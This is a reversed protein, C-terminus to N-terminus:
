CDSRTVRWEATLDQNSQFNVTFGTVAKNTIWPTEDNAPRSPLELDVHYDADSMPVDFVVDVMAETDLTATGRLKPVDLVANANAAVISGVLTARATVTVTEQLNLGATVCNRLLFSQDGSLNAQGGLICNDFTAVGDGDLDVAIPTGLATAAAIEGCDTFIYGVAGGAPQANGTDYRLSIAGIGQVGQALFLGVEELLLLGLNSSESWYGGFVRIINAATAWLNRNGGASNAQLNCDLLTIGQNGVNSAAGGVVRVAAKNTHANTIDFGQILISRPITGNQESIILTHDNGVADPTAELASRVEPRGIGVLRVGDRVINLTEDYRGPMVLVLYPNTASASSPVADLASQITTYQAGAGTKGVTFVNTIARLGALQHLLIGGTIVADQFRLAGTAADRNILLTQNSGPEIQIQDILFPSQAM